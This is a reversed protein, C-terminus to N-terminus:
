EEQRLCDVGAPQALVPARDVDGDGMSSWVRNGWSPLEV